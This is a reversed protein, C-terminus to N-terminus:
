GPKQYSSIKNDFIFTELEVLNNLKLIKELYFTNTLPASEAMVNSNDLLNDGVKKM